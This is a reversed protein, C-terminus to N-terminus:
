ISGCEGTCDFIQADIDVNPEEVWAGLHERPASAVAQKINQRRSRRVDWHDLYQYTGFSSMGMWGRVTKQLMQLLNVFLIGHGM